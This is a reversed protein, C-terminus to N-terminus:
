CGTSSAAIDADYSYGAQTELNAPICTQWGPETVTVRYTSQALSLFTFHGKSDTKTSQQDAKSRALVTVNPVPKGHEHVYGDIRVRSLEVSHQAMLFPVLLALVLARKM